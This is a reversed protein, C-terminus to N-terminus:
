SSPQAGEGRVGRLVAEAMDHQSGKGGIDPTRTAPNVIASELGSRMHEAAAVAEAIGRRAGLRDLHM